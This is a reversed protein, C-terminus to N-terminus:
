RCVRHKLKQTKAKKWLVVEKHLLLGIGKDM